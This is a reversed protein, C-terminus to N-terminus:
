LPPLTPFAWRLRQLEGVVGLVQGTCAQYQQASYLQAATILPPVAGTVQPAIPGAAELWRYTHLLLAAAQQRAAEIAAREALSPVPYAGM